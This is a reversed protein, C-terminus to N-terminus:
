EKVIVTGKIRLAVMGGPKNVANTEVSITKSIPGPSMNYQVSIKGNKGPAIAEKPWEPVTCGCSSKANSILLPADGTNTFEFVRLGNDKGKEVEGYNITEEKFEIKAGSQAISNFGVFVVLYVLLKKMM